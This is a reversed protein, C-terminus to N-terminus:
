KTGGAPKLEGSEARLITAAMEEGLIKHGEERFHMFDIDGYAEGWLGDPVAHDIDIFYAGEERAVRQTDKKCEEYQELFYPPSVDWRLPPIYVIVKVHADAAAKLLARLSDMNKEYRQPIRPRKTTANIGFIWNRLHYVDTALFTSFIEGRKAWVDWHRDAWGELANEVIVQLSFHSHTTGQSEREGASLKDLERTLEIGAGSGALATRLGPSDIETFDPRLGDERTDDFVVPIILWEPVRRQLVWQGVVMHEQLSANPLSLGYVPWGLRESAYVPALTDGEKYQNVSHLQSNGLWVAENEHVERSSSEPYVGAYNSLRLATLPKSRWSVEMPKTGAGLALEDPVIRNQYYYNLVWLGLGIGVGLTVLRKVWDGGVSRWFPNRRDMPPRGDTTADLATM